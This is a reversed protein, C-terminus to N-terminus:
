EKFTMLAGNMDFVMNIMEKCMFVFEIENRKCKDLVDNVQEDKKKKGEIFAATRKYSYDYFAEYFDRLYSNASDLLKLSESSLQMKDKSVKKAIDRYIDGIKELQEVICYLPGVKGAEGHRKNIIRRCFDSYRNILYDRLMISEIEQSNKRRLSMSLDNGVDLLSIMLRRLIKDLEEPDASSVAEIMVRKSSQETIEFGVCANSLVQQIMALEEPTTYVIEVKEYGAKYIAGILRKLLSVSGEANLKKSKASEIYDGATIIISNETENVEVENGQKLSNKQLWKSPLSLTLAGGGQKVLKRKM